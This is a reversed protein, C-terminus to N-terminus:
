TSKTLNPKFSKANNEKEKFLKKPMFYPLFHLVVQETRSRNRRVTEEHRGAGDDYRRRLQGEVVAPLQRKFRRRHRLRVSVLDSLKSHFM